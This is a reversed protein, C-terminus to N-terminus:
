GFFPRYFQRFDESAFTKFVEKPPTIEALSANAKLKFFPLIACKLAVVIVAVVYGFSYHALIYGVSLAGIVKGISKSLLSLSFQKARNHNEEVYIAELVDSLPYYIAGAIAAFFLSCYAIILNDKAFSIIVFFMTLSSFAIVLSKIIGLRSSVILGFPCLAGRVGFELGFFLLVFHLPMGSKIFYAGTFLYMSSSAIYVFLRHLYLLWYNTQAFYSIKM